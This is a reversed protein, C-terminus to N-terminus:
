AVAEKRALAEGLLKRGEHDPERNLETTIALSHLACLHEFSNRAEVSLPLGDAVIKVLELEGGSLRRSLRDRLIRAKQQHDSIM